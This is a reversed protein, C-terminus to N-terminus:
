EASVHGGTYVTPRELRANDLVVKEAVERLTPAGSGASHFAVSPTYYYILGSSRRCAQAVVEYLGDRHKDEIEQRGVIEGHNLMFFYAGYIFDLFDWTKRYHDREEEELKKRALEEQEEVTLERAEIAEVKTVGYREIVKQRFYDPPAALFLSKRIKSFEENEESLIRNRGREEKYAIQNLEKIVMLSEERHNIISERLKAEVGVIWSRIELEEALIERAKAYPYGVPGPRTRPPVIRPQRQPFWIRRAKHYEEIQGPSMGIPVDNKDMRKKDAMMIGAVHLVDQFGIWQSREIAKRATTEDRIMANLIEEDSRNQQKVVLANYYEKFSQGVAVTM